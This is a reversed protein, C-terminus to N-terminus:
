CSRLLPSARALKALPPAPQAAAGHSRVHLATLFVPYGFGYSSLLAKNLLLV